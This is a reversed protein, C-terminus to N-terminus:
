EARLTVAPDVTAAKRAPIYSALLAAGVLGVSVVVYTLPDGASVGFLLSAILRTLLAAAGLGFTIGIGALVLGHRVFMGSVQQERAGLAMRIGIERNRQSVSYSIVGYIGVLGLLLAMAGAIALMVLTFSTRAMSKSYIEELTRVDALPLNPNVSWVAKRIENLFAVSGTRKSRIAFAVTRRSFVKDGWFDKMLLPWYVVTPPKTQVGDDYEDGVVGIIERWEDKMGERVRKGIAAAPTHWYERALNESVLVVPRFGYTEAWTLDRGAVFRRGVTHFYGPAIFKFRRVPPVKGEALPHDEAFLLDGSTNGDMTVASTMSAAQVGPVSGIRNLIDQHMHVAREPEKVQTDPISLRLTLVEEPRTFGPQVQRLAQFTRIMLGSSILLVLALAMQIVVLVNRAQHRERGASVTRNSERLGTGPRVGSYKFVPLLGFLVGSLLSIALTFLLAWPDIGIEDLRPLGAPAIAVLLRLAGFAVALGLVGGGIGLAVSEFLLERAIQGWGAGLAARIALEHQRGEARVLLLNAINACAILLVAGITGMLVWLVSGIDGVVDRMFPRVNPGLRADEFIKASFGPPPPFTKLWIPIMRAVDANAGALAVGPKLRAIGQYSFNGLFVKNRDFQLPLVLAPQSNMFRFSRPLVGIIEHSNGDIVIRKGIVSSAGGFRSQWYGYTLIATRPSGDTDDQHTFLRGKAPQVGLIPLVGETVWLSRVQEPEAIQTVSVSGGTYAGVNQFTRGQERYTFYLSPCIEIEKIDIGKATHWLGVLRDPELYPLPKLLIGEVVSFIATNAGIGLALTILTVVAFLPSRFLRRLVAKSM